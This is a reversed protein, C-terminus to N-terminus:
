QFLKIYICTTTIISLMVASTSLMVGEFKNDSMFECYAAHALVALFSFWVFMVVIIM